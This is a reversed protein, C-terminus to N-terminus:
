TFGIYILSRSNGLATALDASSPFVASDVFADLIHVLTYLYRSGIYVHITDDAKYGGVASTAHPILSVGGLEM